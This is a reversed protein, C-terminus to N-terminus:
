NRPTSAAALTLGLGLQPGQFSFPMSTSHCHQLFSVFSKSIARKCRTQQNPFHGSIKFNEQGSFFITKSRGPRYVSTEVALKRSFGDLDHRVTFGDRRIKRCRSFVATAATTFHPVILRAGSRDSRRRRRVIGSTRNQSPRKWLWIMYSVFESAVRNPM